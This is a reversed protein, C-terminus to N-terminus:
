TVGSREALLSQTQEFDNENEDDNENDIRKPSAPICAISVGFSGLANRYNLSPEPLLVSFGLALAIGSRL